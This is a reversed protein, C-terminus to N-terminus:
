TRLDSLFNIEQEQYLEGEEAQVGRRHKRM